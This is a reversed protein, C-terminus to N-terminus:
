LSDDSRSRPGCLGLKSRLLDGGIAFFGFASKFAIEAKDRLVQREVRATRESASVPPPEEALRQRLLRWRHLNGSGCVVFLLEEPRLASAISAVQLDLRRLCKESVRADEPPQPASLESATAAPNAAAGQCRREFDRLMVLRVQRPEASSADPVQPSPSAALKDSLQMAARAAGDDGAVPLRQCNEYYWEACTGSIPPGPDLLTLEVGSDHLLRGLPASAAATHPLAAGREFKLLALDMATRADMISDHGHERGMDRDLYMRALQALSQRHPWGRPHTFLIATDVVRGHIFRLANLDSELSHGVLVTDAHVIERLKRHVDGLTVEVPDLMEATIGSYKTVYDTVEEDPRVLTDYLVDGDASVASVRALAPGSATMVMECDIAVLLGYDPDLRLRARPTLTEADAVHKASSPEAAAASARGLPASTTWGDGLTSPYASRKREIESALYHSIPPREGGAPAAAPKASALPAAAQGRINVTRKAKAALLLRLMRCGVSTATQDSPFPELEQPSKMQVFNEQLILRSMVPMAGPHAAITGADVCPMAVVTAARVLAMGRLNVWKAHEGHEETFVRLLFAQVDGLTPKLTCTANPHLAVAEQGVKAKKKKGRRGAAGTARGVDVSNGDVDEAKRKGM